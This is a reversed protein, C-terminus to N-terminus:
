RPINWPDGLSGWLQDEEPTVVQSLLQIAADTLLPSVVTPPLDRPYQPVVQVFISITNQTLALPFLKIEALPSCLLKHSSVTGLSNFLIHVFDPASPNTLTRELQGQLM